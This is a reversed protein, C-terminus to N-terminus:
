KKIIDFMKTNLAITIKDAIENKEEESIKLKELFSERLVRETRAKKYAIRPSIEKGKIFIILHCDRKLQDGILKWWINDTEGLSSGFICILNAKMVLEKCNHNITHKLAENCSDKVLAEIINIDKQFATNKIQSSDNVGMVMRDKAYGHIHHLGQLYIEHGHQAGIRLHNQNDGFIQELSTTYNFTIIQVEWNDNIWKKKFEAIKNTDARPLSDEPFSLNDFMRKINIKSFDSNNEEQLLYDSLKEGIDEFLEDFEEVSKLKGTYAGLALELDSWNELNKSIDEKLKKIAPTRSDTTHYYNYFDPYSTKMGINLDFGNGIFFLTNM